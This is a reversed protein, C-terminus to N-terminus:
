SHLKKIITEALERDEMKFMIYSAVAKFAVAKIKRNNLMTMTVIAALQDEDGQVKTEISGESTEILLTVDPIGGKESSPHNSINFDM